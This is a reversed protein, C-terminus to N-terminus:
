VITHFSPSQSPEGERGWCSSMVELPIMNLESPVTGAATVRMWKRQLLGAEAWSVVMGSSEAVWPLGQSTLALGM